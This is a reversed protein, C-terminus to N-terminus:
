QIEVRGRAVMRIGDLRVREPYVGATVCITDGRGAQQLAAAITRKPGASSSPVHTEATGDHADSGAKQDVYWTRPGTRSARNVRSDRPSARSLDNTGRSMRSSADLRNTDAADTRLAADVRGARGVVTASADDVAVSSEQCLASAFIRVQGNSAFLSIVTAEPASALELRNTFWEVGSMAPWEVGSMAPWEVGSMAPWCAADSAHLEVPEALALLDADHIGAFLTADPEGSGAVALWLSGTVLARDVQLLLRNTALEAQWAGDSAQWGYWTDNTIWLGGDKVAALLWPPQPSTNRGGATFRPDGWPVLAVQPNNTAVDGLCADLPAHGVPELAHATQASAAAPLLLLSGCLVIVPLRGTVCSSKM